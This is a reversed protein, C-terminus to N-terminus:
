LKAVAQYTACLTKVQKTKATERGPKQQKEMSIPFSPSNGATQKCCGVGDSRTGM